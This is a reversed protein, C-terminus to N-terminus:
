SVAQGLTAIRFLTGVPLAFYIAATKTLFQTM